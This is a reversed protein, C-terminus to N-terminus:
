AALMDDARVLRRVGDHDFQVTALFTPAFKTRRNVVSILVGDYLKRGLQAVVYVEAVAVDTETIPFEPLVPGAALVRTFEILERDSDLEATAEVESDYELEPVDGLAFDQEDERLDAAVDAEMREVLGEQAALNLRLGSLLQELAPKRLKSLAPLGETDGNLEVALKRIEAILEANTM